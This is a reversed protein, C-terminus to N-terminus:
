LFTAAATTKRIIFPLYSVNMKHLGCPYKKLAQKLTPKLLTKAIKRRGCNIELYSVTCYKVIKRSESSGHKKPTKSVIAKYIEM